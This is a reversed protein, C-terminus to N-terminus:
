RLWVVAVTGVFIPVAYALKPASSGDITLEPLSRLGAVRWHCLLLWINRLATPLYGHVAAVVLAMVAGAIGAYAALWLVEGTGLWAGLAALLKVDGAGLGGLAFPVFFVLAGVLWGALAFGVGTAGTSSLHFLLAMAAAGFTLVNPIRRTGLDWILALAAVGLALGHTVTM